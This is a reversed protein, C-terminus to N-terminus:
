LGVEVTEGCFGEVSDRSRVIVRDIGVPVVVGDLSRTFPQEDVHPHTLVRTGLVTGDPALVEFMDAYKEWGVDPSRITVDFGFARGDGATVEVALVDACGNGSTADQRGGGCAALLFGILIIRSSMTRRYGGRTADFGHMLEGDVDRISWADEGPDGLLEGARTDVDLGKGREPHAPLGLDADKGVFGGGRSPNEFGITQAELFALHECCM